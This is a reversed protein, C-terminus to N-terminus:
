AAKRGKCGFQGMKGTFHAFMLPFIPVFKIPCNEIRANGNRKKKERAFYDWQGRRM